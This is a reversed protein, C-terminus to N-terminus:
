APPPRGRSSTARRAAPGACSAKAVYDTYGRAARCAAVSRSNQALRAPSPFRAQGPRSFLQVDGTVAPRNTAAAIHRCATLANQKALDAQSLQPLDVATDACAALLALVAIVPFHSLRIM